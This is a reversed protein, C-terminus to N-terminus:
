AVDPWGFVNTNEDILALLHPTTMRIITEEANKNKSLATLYFGVGSGEFLAHLIEHALVDRTRARSLGERIWITDTFFDCEGDNDALAPREEPTALWVVFSMGCVHVSPLQRM